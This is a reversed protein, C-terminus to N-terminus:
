EGLTDGCGRKESKDARKHFVFRKGKRGCRCEGDGVISGIDDSIISIGPYSHPIPSLLQIFGQKGRPLPEFTNVDRIIVDSYAPVHKFGYPCDPYIVGMHEVMGYMDIVKGPETAFFDSVERNFQEKSVKMDNMKKWGGSHLVTCGGTKKAIKAKADQNEKVLKYLIFTFGYLAPVATIKPLADELAKTDLSLDDRLIFFMRRSFSLLGRMTTARSSLHSDASRITSPSDIFIFDRREKGIFDSIISNITKVQRSMSVDDLFVSSPRGTTTSSSHVTRQIEKEPVSFLKVQKFTDVPIFPIDEVSFDENPNFGRKDCFSKYAECHSYHFIAAEKMASLFLRDKEDEKLSYPEKTLLKEISM